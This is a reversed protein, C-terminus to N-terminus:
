NNHKFLKNWSKDIASRVEDPLKAEKEAEERDSDSLYERAEAIAEDPPFLGYLEKRISEVAEQFEPYGKSVQDYLKNVETSYDKDGIAPFKKNNNEASWKDRFQNLVLVVLAELKHHEFYEKWDFDEKKVLMDAHEAPTKRGLERAVVANDLELSRAALDQLVGSLPIRAGYTSGLSLAFILFIANHRM